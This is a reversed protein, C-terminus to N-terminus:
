RSFTCAKCGVLWRTQDGCPHNIKEIRRERLNRHGHRMVSMWAAVSQRGRRAGGEGGGGGGGGLRTIWLWSAIASATSTSRALPCTVM